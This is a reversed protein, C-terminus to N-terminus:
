PAMEPLTSAAAQVALALRLERRRAAPLTDPWWSLRRRRGERDRAQLFALPGRWRVALDHLAQGDLSAGAGTIVLNRAPKSAERKALLAGYALALLATPVGWTSPLECTLLAVAALMGLLIQARVMWRSPRWDIRVPAADPMRRSPASGTSSGPSNPM